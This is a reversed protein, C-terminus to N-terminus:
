EDSKKLLGAREEYFTAFSIQIYPLLFLIGIGFTFSSLILWGIFSLGLCFLRWRNDKMLEESKNVIDKASLEDNDEM